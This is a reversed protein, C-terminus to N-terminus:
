VEIGSEGLHATSTFYFCSGENTESWCVWGTKNSTPYTEMCM